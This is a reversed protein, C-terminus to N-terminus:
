DGPGAASRVADLLQQPEADKMVYGIAGSDLAQEIRERSSLSTLVLVTATAHTATLRRTAEVGDMVPMSLDMLVVDPRKDSVVELAQRGDAAVGAVDIDGATSFLRALGARVLEHDDVIVLRIM